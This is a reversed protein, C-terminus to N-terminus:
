WDSPSGKATEFQNVSTASSPRYVLLLHTNKINCKTESITQPPPFRPEFTNKDCAENAFLFGIGGAHNHLLGAVFLIRASRAFRGRFRILIVSAAEAPFRLAQGFGLAAAVPNAVVLLVVDNEREGSVTAAAVVPAIREAAKM